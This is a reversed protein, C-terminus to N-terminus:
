QPSLSVLRDYRYHSIHTLAAHISVRLITGAVRSNLICFASNPFPCCAFGRILCTPSVNKASKKTLGIQRRGKEVRVEANQSRCESKMFTKWQSWQPCRTNKSFVWHTFQPCRSANRGSRRSTPERSGM